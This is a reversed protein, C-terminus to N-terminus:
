PPVIFTDPLPVVQSMVMLSPLPEVAGGRQLCSALGRQGKPLIVASFERDVSVLSSQGAIQNSKQVFRGALKFKTVVARVHDQCSFVPCTRQSDIIKGVPSNGIDLEAIRVSRHIIVCYPLLGPQVSIEEKPLCRNFTKTRHGLAKQSQCPFSEIM